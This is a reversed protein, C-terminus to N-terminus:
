PWWYLIDASQDSAAEAAAQNAVEVFRPRGTFDAAPTKEHHAGAMRAHAAIAEAIDGTPTGTGTPTHSLDILNYYLIWRITTDAAIGSLAGTAEIGFARGSQSATWWLRHFLQAWGGDNDLVYQLFSSRTRMKAWITPNDGMLIEGIEIDETSDDDSSTLATSSGMLQLYVREATYAQGEPAPPLMQVPTNHLDRLQATTITGAAYRLPYPTSVAGIPVVPFVPTPTETPGGLRSPTPASYWTKAQERLIQAVSVGDGSVGLVSVTGIKQAAETAAAQLAFFLASHPRGPITMGLFGSLRTDTFYQEDPNDDGLLLRMQAM